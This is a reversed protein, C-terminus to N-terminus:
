VFLLAVIFNHSGCVLFRLYQEDSFNSSCLLLSLLPHDGPESGIIPVFLEVRVINFISREYQGKMLFMKFDIDIKYWFDSGNANYCLLTFM